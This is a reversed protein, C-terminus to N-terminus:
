PLSDIGVRFFCHDELPGHNTYSNVPPDAPLGSAIPAFSGSLSLACDVRYYRGTVSDWSLVIGDGAATPQFGALALFSAPDWPDTGAAMEDGDSAGDEDSDASPVANTPGGFHLTEWWDPLGDGDQDGSTVSVACRFGLDSYAAGPDAHSRHACQVQEPYSVWSGGRLVRRTGTGPGAPNTSNCSLSADYWDANWEWVNGGVDFLGYGNAAYSGPLTPGLLNLDHNADQADITDGWPYLADTLGGRAAFEWEAETPLRRGRWVAYATADAWTVNVAPLSPDGGPQSPMSRSTAQAFAEYEAVTVESAEMLFASVTVPCGSQVDSAGMNYTGGPIYVLDPILYVAPVSTSSNCLVEIPTLQPSTYGNVASFEVEYSGLPLGHVSEGTIHWTTDPGSTLRWQAGMANVPAPGVTVTVSGSATVTILQNAVAHNGCADTATWTRTILAEFPQAGAGLSDSYEVTPAPDCGDVALAEGTAAPGTPQECDISVDPPVTLVPAETDAAVITQTCNVSNGCADSAEYVYKVSGSCDDGSTLTDVLMVTVSDACNDTASVQGPDAAPVLDLCQVTMDPACTTILPPTLDEALIVARDTDNGAAPDGQDAATVSATNTLSVSCASLTGVTVTIELQVSGHAPVTDVTWLGSGPDYTGQGANSDLYSLSLPPSHVVAVGTADIIGSNTVTITYMVAEGCTPSTNSVMMSLALDVIDPAFVVDMTITGTVNAFLQTYARDLQTFTGVPTGNTLVSDIHHGADAQVVVRTSGGHNVVVPVDPLVTGNGTVTTLVTYTKIAFNATVQRAQDMTINLVPHTPDAAGINGTWTVFDHGPAPTATIVVSTTTDLFGDAADVSGSGATEVDLLYQTKWQWNLTSPRTLSFGTHTGSGSAPVDGTGNWGTAVYQTTGNVVPSDPVWAALNTGYGFAHAGVPPSPSGYPSTVQLAIQRLAFRAHLTRARDMLVLLLNDKEKGAPVDGTWGAFDYGTNPVASLLLVEGADRWGVPAYVVGDLDATVGLRYQTKWEWNLTSPRTITFSTNTGSGSATVDGTGTWGTAVHQTTIGDPQPSGGVSANILTGYDHTSIGAPSPDGFASNVALVVQDVLGLILRPRQSPKDKERSDFKVVKAPGTSRLLFGHNTSTGAHWDRVLPTVDVARLQDKVDAAFQAVAQSAYDGGPSVWSASSTRSTWTAERENWDALVQHVHVTQGVEVDNEYLFLHAYTVASSSPVLSLDFQLLSHRRDQPKPDVELSSDTGYNHDEDEERVFTDKGAPLALVDIGDVNDDDQILGVGTSEGLYADVPDQLVLFFTESAEEELDGQVHVSVTTTTIGPPFVLSTKSIKQYDEPETATGDATRYDVEVEYDVPHGLSVEFVALTTGADGETVMANGVSFLNSTFQATVTRAQDMTVTLTTNSPDAGGTDGTWNNFGFGVDAAATLTVNAGSDRFGDSRNVSGGGVTEVDLFYRTKWDWTISSDRELTFPGTDAGVGSPPVDGTGTWGLVVHQTGGLTVPSGTMVANTTTGYAILNSGAPPVPSGHASSVELLFDPAASQVQDWLFVFPQNQNEGTGNELRPFPGWGSGNWYGFRLATNDNQVALMAGDSGPEPYLVMTTPTGGVAPGPLEASWAGNSRTLFGLDSGSRGYAVLLDGSLGEFALALNPYVAGAAVDVLKRAPEWAAGDWVSVWMERSSTLAGVAIRDSSPDAALTSWRVRSTVGSPAAIGAEPLWASGDWIRYRLDFGMPAAYVVMGRGSQAEYAPYADTYNVNNTVLALANSWGSGTWHMGYVGGTSSAVLLLEDAYPHAAIRIQQPESGAYGDVNAPVDWTSGDWTSYRLFPRDNWVLLADGSRPEYAVACGWWFTDSVLGTLTPPLPNWGGGDWMMGAVTGNQTIGVVIKEDRTPADAGQMIRWLFPVDSLTTAPTIFAAGDWHAYEAAGMAQDFWVAMHNTAPQARLVPAAAHLLAWVFM